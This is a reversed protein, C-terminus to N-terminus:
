ILWAYSMFRVIESSIMIESGVKASDAFKMFSCKKGIEIILVTRLVLVLVALGIVLLVKSYNEM